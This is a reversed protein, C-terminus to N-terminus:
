MNEKINIKYDDNNKILTWMVTVAQGYGEMM